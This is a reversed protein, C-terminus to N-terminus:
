IEEKKLIERIYLFSAIGVIIFSIIAFRSADAFNFNKFALEYIYTPIIHTSRAPGGGTMVWIMEFYNFTWVSILLLTIKIVNSISPITVHLFEQIGNAGDIKAAESLEKPVTRLAALCMLMAFGFGKWIAALVVAYLSKEVSGLWTISLSEIVGLKLLINNLFGFQADYILKWIMAAVVGPIIWPLIIISRFLARGKFNRNLVVASFLGITFQFFVVLFTWIISNKLVLGTYDNKFIELYGKFGIFSPSMINNDFFSMYLSYIIPIFLLLIVLIISPGTMLYGLFNSKVKNSFM